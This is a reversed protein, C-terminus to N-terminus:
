SNPSQWCLLLSAALIADSTDKSFSVITERIGQLARLQYRKMEEVAEKMGSVKALHSASLALM